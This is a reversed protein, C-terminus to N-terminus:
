SEVELLEYSYGEYKEAWECSFSHKSQIWKMIVFQAKHKHDVKESHVEEGDRNIVVLFEM